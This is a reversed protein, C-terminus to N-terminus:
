ARTPYRTQRPLSDWFDCHPKALGRGVATDQALRMHMDATRNYRPWHVEVSTEAREDGNPSGHKALNTWYTGMTAAMKRAADTPEPSNGWVYGLEAGHFVGCGVESMLQCRRSAPDVYAQSHFDFQYLYVDLGHDSLARAATRTGCRFLFDTGLTTLRSAPTHFAAAPYAVQVQNCTTRNWHEHYESLTTVVVDIDADTVPLRVGRYVLPMAVLFLAMEDTNTGLIVRLPQGSPSRNIAGRQMRALPVEPLGTSSGDVVATFGAIPAFPPRPEPWGGPTRQQSPVVTANM